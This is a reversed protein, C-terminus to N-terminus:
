SERDTVKETKIVTNSTHNAKLWDQKSSQKRTLSYGAQHDM